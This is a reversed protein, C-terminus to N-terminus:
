TLGFSYNSKKNLNSILVLTIKHFTGFHFNRASESDSKDKSNVIKPKQLFRTCTCKSFEISNRYM